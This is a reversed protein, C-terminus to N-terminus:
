AQKRLKDAHLLNQKLMKESTFKAEDLEDKGNGM